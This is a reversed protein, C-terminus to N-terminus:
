EQGKKKAAKKKPAPPNPPRQAPQEVPQPPLPPVAPRQARSKLIPFIWWALWMVIVVLVAWWGTRIVHYVFLPAFLQVVALFMAAGLIVLTRHLAGLKLMMYVGAAVIVLWLLFAFAEKGMTTVSLEGPADQRLFHWAVGQSPLTFSLAVVPNGNADRPVEGAFRGLLVEADYRALQTFIRDHGLVHDDAPLWVRWLTQQVRVEKPLSPVALDGASAGDQGYSIELVLRTVQGASPPLRVIRQDPEGPKHPKGTHEVPAEAGNLLVQTLTAKEPLTIVLRDGRSTKLLYIVRGNLKGDRALVQEVIAASAITTIVAAEAQTVVPLSLAFEDKTYKFALSAVAQHPRYPLDVASSPDGPILNETDPDGIALTEAKAVAIHGSQDSLKGAALVPKVQVTTATDVIGAQFKRRSSVTLTYTGIVPSQLVVRYYAWGTAGTAPQTAAGPDEAPLKEIRPKEKIDRGTIQVGADAMAVPMKVYLTDVPAYLIQYQIVATDQISGPQINILRHVVASVQSPKIAIKFKAGAPKERDIARFEFAMAPALGSMSVWRSARNTPLAQFQQLEDVEARFKPALHLMLQGTYLHLNEAEPLPLAFAVPDDRKARPTRAVIDLAVSGSVERKLLISLVRDTGKGTLQHDDVVSSPGVTIIEWPEPLTMRIRFIGTREITYTLRGRLEQRDDTIGLAWLQAVTIRPAVTGIALTAGYDATAFSYAMAGATARLNKPLRGKDVRALNRPSRLEVSRRPSHTVAILGTRRLVQQTFVPSLKMEVEAEKLFREMKVTLTYSDKAPGFLKVKLLKPGPAADEGAIDWKSINAGDVATVRFGSPLQVTFSDVGRRRIDYTFKVEHSILAEAIHIHQLQNSIVVPELQAAAQTTPKWSLKVATASGLFAQLKTAKADDLKVQSTTAALMPEVDVKMNEEPILLDLTSIAAAPMQYSLVNLGPKTVLQRVFSLKLVKRGKGKTLLVYRGKIVQLLPEVKDPGKVFSADAVAAQGLGIPVEVWGDVLVDLTLEMEMVALKQGVKGTFRAASILYKDPVTPAGAPAAQALRWLRQFEKYPLFVGQEAKGFVDKLKEYPVYVRVPEDKAKQAWVATTLCVLLACVLVATKRNTM